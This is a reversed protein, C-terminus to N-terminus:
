RAAPAPRGEPSVVLPPRKAAGKVAFHWWENRLGEFGSDGMAAQLLHLHRAAKPDNGEYIASAEPAFVDFGSPMTVERGLLDVLTADVALGQTHFSGGGEAPNAVFGRGAWRRYLIAQAEAPRYADWIKLRYGWEHLKRQALHLRLATEPRTLCPFDAPYVAAGVCNRATAYRLEVVITRDYKQIDM